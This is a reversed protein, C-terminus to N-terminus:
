PAKNFRSIDRVIGFNVGLIARIYPQYPNINGEVALNLGIPKFFAISCDGRLTLGLNTYRNMTYVWVETGYATDKVQAFDTYVTHFGLSPGVVVSADIMKLRKTTFGIAVSINDLRNKQLGEKYTTGFPGPKEELPGVSSESSSYFIGLSYLDYGHAMVGFSSHGPYGYGMNLYLRNLGNQANIILFSISLVVTLVLKKIM